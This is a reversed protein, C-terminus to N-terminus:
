VVGGTLIKKAGGSLLQLGGSVLGLITVWTWKNNTQEELALTSAKGLSGEKGEIFVQLDNSKQTLSEVRAALATKDGEETSLRLTAESLEARLELQAAQATDLQTNLDQVRRQNMTGCAALLCVVAVLVVVRGLRNGNRM